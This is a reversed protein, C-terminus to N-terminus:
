GWNYYMFKGMKYIVIIPQFAQVSSSGILWFEILTGLTTLCIFLFVNNLIKPAAWHGRGGQMKGRIYEIKKTRALQHLIIYIYQLSVLIIHMFFALEANPFKYLLHGVIMLLILPYSLLSYTSISIWHHYVFNCM